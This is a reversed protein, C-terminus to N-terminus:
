MTQWLPEMDRHHLVEMEGNGLRVHGYQERGGEVSVMEVRGCGRHTRVHDGEGPRYDSEDHLDNDGDASELAPSTDHEPFVFGCGACTMTKKEHEM